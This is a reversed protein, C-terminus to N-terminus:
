EEAWGAKKTRVEVVFPTAAEVPPVVREIRDCFETQGDATMSAWDVDYLFVEIATRTTDEDWPRVLTLWEIFQDATLKPDGARRAADLYARSAWKDAARAIRALLDTEDYSAQETGAADALPRVVHTLPHIGHPLNEYAEDLRGLAVRAQQRASSSPSALNDSVQLYRDYEKTRFLSTAYASSMGDELGEAEIVRVADASRGAAALGDVYPEAAAALGGRYMKELPELAEEAFQAATHATAADYVAVWEDFGDAGADTLAAALLGGLHRRAEGMSVDDPRSGLLDLTKAADKLVAEAGAADDWTVAAEVSAKWEEATSAKEEQAHAGAAALAAILGIMTWLRKTM